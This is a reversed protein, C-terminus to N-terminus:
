CASKPINVKFFRTSNSLLLYNFVTRQNNDKKRKMKDHLTSNPEFAPARLCISSSRKSSWSSIRRIHIIPLREVRLLSFSSTSLEKGEPFSIASPTSHENIQTILEKLLLELQNLETMKCFLHFLNLHKQFIIKLPKKRQEM